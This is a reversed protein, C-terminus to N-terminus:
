SEHESAACNNFADGHMQDGAAKIRYAGRSQNVVARLLRARIEDVVVAPAHERDRCVARRTQTIQNCHLVGEAREGGGFEGNFDIRRHEAHLNHFGVLKEVRVVVRGFVGDIQARHCVAGVPEGKLRQEGIRRREVVRTQYDTDVGRLVGCQYLRASKFVAAM